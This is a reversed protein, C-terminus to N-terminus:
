LFFAWNYPMDCSATIGAVISGYWRKEPSPVPDLSLLLVLSGTRSYVLIRIVEIKAESLSAFGSCLMIPKAWLGGAAAFYFCSEECYFTICKWILLGYSYLKNGAGFWDEHGQKAHLLRDEKHYRSVASCIETSKHQTRLTSIYKEPPTASSRPHARGMSRGWNKWWVQDCDQWWFLGGKPCLCSCTHPWFCQQAGYFCSRWPGPTRYTIIVERLLHKITQTWNERWIICVSFRGLSIM